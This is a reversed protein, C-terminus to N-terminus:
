YLYLNQKRVTLNWFLEINFLETEHLYLKLTLFTRNWVIWNLMCFCNSILCNSKAYTWLKLTLVTTNWVLWNLMFVRNQEIQGLRKTNELVVASNPRGSREADNTDTPCRKFDAYWWKVTTELPASNSYSKDLWEKTQVTNRLMLFCHKILMRLGSKEMTKFIQLLLKVYIATIQWSIIRNPEFNSM